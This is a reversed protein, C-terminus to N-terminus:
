DRVIVKRFTLSVRRGRPIWNDRFLDKKRKPIAHRWAYRAEGSMLILSRPEMFVPVCESSERHSFEVVCSSALSLSAISDGFCPVCDGHAAIGQGPQYENVIVQDPVAPLQRAAVMELGIDMLWEPLPGLFFDSTVTRGKYDYKYGYHQVRRKLSTIWDSQDVRKLLEREADRDLCNVFYKLGPVRTEVSATFSMPMARKTVGFLMLPM